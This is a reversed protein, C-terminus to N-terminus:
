EAPAAPVERTLVIDKGPHTCYRHGNPMTWVTTGSETTVTVGPLHRLIHHMKCLCRCNSRHSPGGRAHEVAHDLECHTAPRHCTPFRCTRDRARIFAAEVADPHRGSHGAPAPGGGSDV